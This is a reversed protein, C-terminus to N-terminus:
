IEKMIDEEDSSDFDQPVFGPVSTSHSSVSTEDDETLPATEETDSPFELAKEVEPDNRFDDLNLVSFIPVPRQHCCTSAISEDHKCSGCM